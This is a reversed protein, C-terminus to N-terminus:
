LQKLVAELIMSGTADIIFAICFFLIFSALIPLRVHRRLKTALIVTIAFSIFHWIELGFIEGM